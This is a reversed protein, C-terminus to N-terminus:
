FDFGVLLEISKNSLGQLGLSLYDGLSRQYQLGINPSFRTEIKAVNGNNSQDISGSPAYGGVLSIRNKKSSKQTACNSSAKVKTIMFQQKRPVVKFDDTSMEKLSGDKQKVIITAGKLSEPTPTNIDKSELIEEVEKCSEEAYVNSTLLLSITILTKM